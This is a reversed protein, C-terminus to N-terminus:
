AFAMNGWGFPDPKLTVKIVLRADDKNPLGGLLPDLMRDAEISVHSVLSDNQLLCFFPDEAPGPIDYGGLDQKQQPKKLADFLTKLHGDIDSGQLIRGPKEPRLYLVEIGCWLFLDATVLPVFRYGFESFQDALYDIKMPAPAVPLVMPFEIHKLERLSKTEQWLAKLQPHLHRRIEQKEKGRSNNGSSPLSGEYTLRFEMRHEETLSSCPDNQLVIRQSKSVM